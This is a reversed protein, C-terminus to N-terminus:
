RGFSILNTSAQICFTAFPAVDNKGRRVCTNLLLIVAQGVCLTQLFAISCGIRTGAAYLSCKICECRFHTPPNALHPGALERSSQMAATANVLPSIQATVCKRRLNTDIISTGAALQLLQDSSGATDGANPAPQRGIQRTHNRVGAAKSAKMCRRLICINWFTTTTSPRPWKSPRRALTTAM